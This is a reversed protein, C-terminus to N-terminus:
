CIGWGSEKGGWTNYRENILHVKVTYGRPDGGFEIRQILGSKDHALTDTIRKMLKDDYANGWEGLDENCLREQHRAYMACLRILSMQYGPLVLGADKINKRATKTLECM